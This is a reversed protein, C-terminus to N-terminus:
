AKKRLDQIAKLPLETLESIELDTKGLNIMKLAIAAKEFGIGKEILEKGVQTEEIPTLQAIM